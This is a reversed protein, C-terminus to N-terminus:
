DNKNKDELKRKIVNRENILKRAVTKNHKYISLLEDVTKNELKEM